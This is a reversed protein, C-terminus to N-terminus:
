WPTPEALFAGARVADGVARLDDHLVRDHEWFAVHRRVETYTARTGAGPTRKPREIPEGLDGVGLGQLHFDLGQAGCLLEIGVVDSVLECVELLGRAAIPGM